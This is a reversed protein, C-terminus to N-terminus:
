FSFGYSKQKLQVKIYRGLLIFRSYVFNRLLLLNDEMTANDGKKGSGWV